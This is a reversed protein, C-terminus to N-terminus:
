WRLRTGGLDQFARVLEQQYAADNRVLRVHHRLEDRMLPVLEDLADAPAPGGAAEYADLFRGARGADLEGGAHCCEWTSWALERAYAAVRSDYWDVVAAVQGHRVLINRAFYDGHIVGRALTPERDAQWGALWADLAPDRIAPPDDAAPLNEPAYPGPAPRPPGPWGALTEHLRGLARGAAALQAPDEPDLHAGAVFPSVSVTRDGFLFVTSGDGAPLPAVALGTAEAVFAVLRDVWAVEPLLREPPNVRVVVPGGPTALRWSEAEEGGPLRSAATARLGYRAQVEALLRALDPAM